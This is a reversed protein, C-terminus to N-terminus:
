ENWTQTTSKSLFYINIDMDLIYSLIIYDVLGTNHSVTQSKGSLTRANQRCQLQQSYHSRMEMSCVSSRRKWAEQKNVREEVFGTTKTRTM